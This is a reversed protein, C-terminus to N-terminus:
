TLWGERRIREREWLVIPIEKRIERWAKDSWPENLIRRGEVYGLEGLAERFRDLGALIEPHEPSRTLLMGARPVKSAQQAWAALPAALFVAGTGALCGRGDIM